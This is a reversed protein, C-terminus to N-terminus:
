LEGMEAIITAQTTGAYILVPFEFRTLLSQLPLPDFQPEVYSRPSASRKKRCPRNCHDGSGKPEAGRPYAVLRNYAVLRKLELSRTSADVCVPGPATPLSHERSRM